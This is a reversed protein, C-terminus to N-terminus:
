RWMCQRCEHCPEKQFTKFRTKKLQVFNEDIRKDIFQPTLIENVCSSLVSFGGEFGLDMGGCGSFLSLVNLTASKTQKNEAIHQTPNGYFRIGLQPEEVLNVGLEKTYGTQM